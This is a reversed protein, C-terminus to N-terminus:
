TQAVRVRYRCRFGSSQSYGAEDKLAEAVSDSIDFLRLDGELGHSRLLKKVITWSGFYKGLEYARREIEFYPRSMLADAVSALVFHKWVDGKNGAKKHHADAM